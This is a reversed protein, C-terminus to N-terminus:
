VIESSDIDNINTPSFCLNNPATADDRTCKWGDFSYGTKTYVPIQNDINAPATCNSTTNYECSKPWTSPVTTNPSYTIAITNPNCVTDYAVTSSSLSYGNNCKMSYSCQGDSKSIGTNSSDTNNINTFSLCCINDVPTYGTATCTTTCPNLTSTSASYSGDTANTGDYYCKGSYHGITNNSSDEIPCDYTPATNCTKYCDKIKNAGSDSDSAGPPCPKLTTKTPSNADDLPCYKAAYNVSNGGCSACNSSSSPFLFSESYTGAACSVCANLNAPNAGDSAPGYQGNFCQTCSIGDGGFGPKCACYNSNSASSNFIANTVCGKAICCTDNNHDYICIDIESNNGLYLGGPSWSTM